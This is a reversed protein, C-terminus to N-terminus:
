QGLNRPAGTGSESPRRVHAKFRAEVWAQSTAYTDDHPEGDTARTTACHGTDKGM